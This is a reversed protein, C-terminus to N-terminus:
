LTYNCPQTTNEGLTQSILAVHAQEHQSITVYGARTSPPYGSQNFAQEDFKALAQTYFANELNEIALAYNLIATDALSIILSSSWLPSASNRVMWQRNSQVIGNSLALSPEPM